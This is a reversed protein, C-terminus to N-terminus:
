REMPLCTRRATPSNLNPATFASWGARLSTFNRMQLNMMGQLLALTDSQTYEVILVSLDRPAMQLCHIYLGSMQSLLRVKLTALPAMQAQFGSCDDRSPSHLRAVETIPLFM